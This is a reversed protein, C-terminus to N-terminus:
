KLLSCNEVELLVLLMKMFLQTNKCVCMCMSRWVALKWFHLLLACGAITEMWFAKQLGFRSPPPATCMSSIPNGFLSTSSSALNSFCKLMRYREGAADGFPEVRSFLRASTYSVLKLNQGLINGAKGHALVGWRGTQALVSLVNPKLLRQM